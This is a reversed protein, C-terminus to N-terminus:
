PQAESAPNEPSRATWVIATGGGASPRRLNTPWIRGQQHLEAIRPRTSLPPHQLVEAVEDATMDGFEQLSRYARERLTAAKTAVTEAAIRSSERSVTSLGSWGPGGPYKQATSNM